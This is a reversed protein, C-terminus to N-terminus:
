VSGTYIISLHPAEYHDAGTNAATASSVSSDQFGQIQVFDNEAMYVKRTMSIGVNYSVTHNCSSMGAVTMGNVLIRVAKSGNNPSPVGFAVSVVVLYWGSLRATYHDNVSNGFAWGSASDTHVVDFTIPTWVQNPLTTTTTTNAYVDCIPRQNYVWNVGTPINNLLTSTVEQGVTWVPQVPISM